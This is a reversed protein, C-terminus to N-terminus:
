KEGGNKEIWAKKKADGKGKSASQQQSGSITKKWADVKKEDTRRGSHDRTEMQRINTQWGDTDGEM